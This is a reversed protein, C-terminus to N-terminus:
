EDGPSRTEWDRSTSDGTCLHVMDNRIWSISVSPPDKRKIFRRTAWPINISTESFSTWRSSRLIEILFGARLKSCTSRESVTPKWCVVCSYGLLCLEVYICGLSGWIKRFWHKGMGPQGYLDQFLSSHTQDRDNIKKIGNKNAIQLLVNLLLLLVVVVQLPTSV